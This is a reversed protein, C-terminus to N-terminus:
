QTGFIRMKFSSNTLYKLKPFLICCYGQINIASPYTVQKTDHSEQVIKREKNSGEQNEECALDTMADECTKGLM